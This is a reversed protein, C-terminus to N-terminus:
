ITDCKSAFFLLVTSINDRYRISVKEGGRALAGEGTPFVAASPPRKKLKEREQKEPAPTYLPLPPPINM